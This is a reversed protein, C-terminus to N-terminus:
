HFEVAHRERGPARTPSDPNWPLSLGFELGDRAYNMTTRAGAQGAFLRQLLMAGFGQRRPPEVPPGGRERWDIQLTPQLTPSSGPESDISWEVALRGNPTSLSGYKAANTTLEHIALGLSLAFDTPLDIPAGSLVVRAGSGDDFIGLESIFLERINIRQWNCDVLMTHTKSLAIIRDSFAACFEEVSTANRRTLNAIAQVTALSNKVRHHLEALMLRQREEALKYESIDMIVGLLRLPQGDPGYEFRSRVDCWITSGDPRLVRHKGCYPERTRRALVLDTEVSARDTPHVSSLWTELSPKVSGPQCGLLDFLRDSWSFEGTGLEFDSMGLRAVDIAMMLRTNAAELQATREAVRLELEQNLQELQRTKRYLEVFIRVKARLLEPIVPVPVYDVAGLQYGRLRDVDDVQVASIFIIATKVFRPHDRIMEALQFGDLEPMCVDILIVAVDNKLLQEFAQRASNARILKEGLEGLMTEYSLLKAPQDDVLLINVQEAMAM